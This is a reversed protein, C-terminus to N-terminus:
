KSKEALRALVIMMAGQAIWTRAHSMYHAAAEPGKDKAIKMFSEAVKEALEM